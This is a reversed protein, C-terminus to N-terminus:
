RPDDRDVMVALLHVRNVDDPSGIAFLPAFRPADRIEDIGTPSSTAPAMIGGGGGSIRFLGGRAQAVAAEENDPEDDLPRM